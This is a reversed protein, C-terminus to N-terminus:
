KLAQTLEANDRLRNCDERWIDSRSTATMRLFNDLDQGDLVTVESGLEIRLRKTLRLHTAICRKWVKRAHKAAIGSKLEAAEASLDGALQALSAQERFSCGVVIVADKGLCVMKFTRAAERPLLLPSYGQKRWYFAVLSELESMSLESIDNTRQISVSNDSSATSDALEKLLDSEKVNWNDVPVLFDKALQTKSALMMHLKEDFTSFEPTSSILHYVNVDRTQGLRYVRDTAQAEKAPNWWRGYHVVNNAATITLGVGAVEPSLILANFGPKEEFQEIIRQRESNSTSGTATSGNIIEVPGFESEIVNKLILQMGISRTFLLVKERRRRIDHLLDMCDQLKFSQELLEGASKDLFNTSDLEIHQYIKVLRQICALHKHQSAEKEFAAMTETHVARQRETLPTIHAIVRKKPLGELSLDKTRRMLISFPTQYRLARKLENNDSHPMKRAVEAMQNFRRIDGLVGPEAFDVISWLDQLTNEVPTGTIAISFKRKLAKMCATIATNPEKIEQAEDAVVVSWDIAEFSPFYNKVTDYNTVIIRHKRITEEDLTHKDTKIRNLEKGHLILSPSFISGSATFFKKMERQWVPLLILPSVILLPEFKELERGLLEPMASEICWALFTLVQLTKGLGMDDALLAGKREDGNSEISKKLCLQLWAIGQKQYSKLDFPKQELETVLSAPREFVPGEASSLIEGALKERIQLSDDAEVSDENRSPQLLSDKSTSKFSTNAPLNLEIQVPPSAESGECDSHGPSQLPQQPVSLQERELLATYEAPTDEIPESLDLQAPEYQLSMEDVQLQQVPDISSTLPSDNLTATEESVKLMRERDEEPARPPEYAAQAQQAKLAQISGLDVADLCETKSLLNLHQDFFEEVGNKKLRYLSGFLNLARYVEDSPVVRLHTGDESMAEYVQQPKSLRKHAERIAKIPANTFYPYFSYLSNGAEELGFCLKDTEIVRQNSIHKDFLIADTKLSQLKALYSLTRRLDRKEEAKLRNFENILEITEFAERSLIYILQSRKLFPGARNVFIARHGSVFESKYAFDEYGLTGTTVLNLKFPSHEPLYDELGYDAEYIEYISDTAIVVNNNQFRAIEQELLVPLVKGLRNGFDGQQRLTSIFSQITSQKKSGSHGSAGAAALPEITLGARGVKLTFNQIGPSLEFESTEQADQKSM